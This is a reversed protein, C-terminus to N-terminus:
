VLSMLPLSNATPYIVPRSSTYGGGPIAEIEAHRTVDGSSRALELGEGVIVGDRILVAGVPPN